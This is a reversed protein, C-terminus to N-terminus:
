RYLVYQSLIKCLQKKYIKKLIHMCLFGENEFKKYSCRINIEECTQCAIVHKKTEDDRPVVECKTILGM